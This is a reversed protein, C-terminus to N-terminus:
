WFPLDGKLSLSASHVYGEDDFTAKTAVEDGLYGPANSPSWSWLEGVEGFGLKRGSPHEVIKVKVNSLLTGASDGPPNANPGPFIALATCTELGMEADKPYARFLHPAQLLCMGTMGYGQGVDIQPLRNKLGQIVQETVPAGACQFFPLFEASDEGGYIEFNL